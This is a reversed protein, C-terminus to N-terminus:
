GPLWARLEPFGLNLPGLILGSQRKPGIFSAMPRSWSRVTKNQRLEDPKFSWCYTRHTGISTDRCIYMIQLPLEGDSFFQTPTVGLNKFYKIPLEFVFRGTDKRLAFIYNGIAIVVDKGFLYHLIETSLHM